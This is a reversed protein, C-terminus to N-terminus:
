RGDRDERIERVPDGTYRGVLSRRIAEAERVVADRDLEVAHGIVIRAEAEISRQNLRAQDKLRQYIGDDLNRITLVAM